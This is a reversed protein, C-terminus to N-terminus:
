TPLRGGLYSGQPALRNAKAHHPREDFLRDSLSGRLFGFWSGPRWLGFSGGRVRCSREGEASRQNLQESASKPSHRTIASDPDVIHQEGWQFPFRGRVNASSETCTFQDARAPTASLTAAVLLAASCGARLACLSVRRM